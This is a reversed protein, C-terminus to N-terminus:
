FPFDKLICLCYFVYYGGLSWSIIKECANESLKPLVGEWVDANLIGWWLSTSLMTALYLVSLVTIVLCGPVLCAM